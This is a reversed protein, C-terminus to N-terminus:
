YQYPTYDEPIEFYDDALTKRKIKTVKMRMKLFRLTTREESEMPFYGEIDPIHLFYVAHKESRNWLKLFEEFFEFNGDAVWYCIETNEARNRVRWQYCKYGNIVKHNRPNKIIEFQKGNIKVYPKTAVDIYLKRSINVAKITNKELNFLLYNDLNGYKDIIDMRVLHKKIYYIYNLTDHQREQVFRITGEFPQNAAHEASGSQPQQFSTNVIVLFLLFAGFLGKKLM